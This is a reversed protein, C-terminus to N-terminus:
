FFGSESIIDFVSVAEKTLEEVSEIMKQDDPKKFSLKKGFFRWDNSYDPKDNLVGASLSSGKLLSQPEAYNGLKAFATDFAEPAKKVKELFELYDEVGKQGREDRPLGLRFGMGIRVYDDKSSEGATFGINLQKRFARGKTFTTIHREYARFNIDMPYSTKSFAKVLDLTVILFDRSLAGVAELEAVSPVFREPSAVRNLKVRDLKRLEDFWRIDIAM